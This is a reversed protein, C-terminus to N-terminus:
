RGAGTEARALGPAPRTRPRPDAVPRRHGAPRDPRLLRDAGIDAKLIPGGWDLEAPPPVRPRSGPPEDCQERADGDDAAPSDTGTGRNAARPTPWPPTSTPWPPSTSGSWCPRRCGPTPSPAPPAPRPPRASWSSWPTAGEPRRHPHGGARAPHDDAGAGLPNRRREGRGAARARVGGRGADPRPHARPRRVAAGRRAPGPGPRPAAAAAARGAGCGSPNLTPAVEALARDAEALVDADRVQRLAHAIASASGWGLLGAASAGATAPLRDRLARGTAVLDKAEGPSAMTNARLWSAASPFGDELPGGAAEFAVATRSQEFRLRAVLVDLAVAREGLAVAPVGALPEAALADVAAALVALASGTATSGGSEM